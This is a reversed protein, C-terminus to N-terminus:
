TITHILGILDAGRAQDSLVVIAAVPTWQATPSWQKDQLHSPRRTDVSEGSPNMGAGLLRVPPGTRPKRKLYNM